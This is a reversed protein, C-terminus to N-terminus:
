NYHIMAKKEKCKEKETAQKKWIGNKVNRQTELEILNSVKRVQRIIGPQRSINLILATFQHCFSEICPKKVTQRQLLKILPHHKM